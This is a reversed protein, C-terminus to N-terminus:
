GFPLSKTGSPVLPVFFLFCFCVVVFFVGGATAPSMLSVLEIGPDSPNGQLLAPCGVGINKGPFDWPCLLSAPYLGHHRLLPPCTQLSKACVCVDSLSELNVLM